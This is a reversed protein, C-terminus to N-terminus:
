ISCNAMNSVAFTSSKRQKGRVEGIRLGTFCAIQIPLLAPNDKAKLFAAL